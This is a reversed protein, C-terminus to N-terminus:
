NRFSLGFESFLLNRYSEDKAAKELEEYRGNSILLLYLQNLVGMGKEIGKEIGKEFGDEYIGEGLNCVSKMGKRMSETTVIDFEDKLIRQKEELDFVNTLLVSLLRLVGTARSDRPDGLCIMVLTMLDFNGREFEVYPTDDWDRFEYIKITHEFKKSPKLCIWISYVKKLNDYDSGTFEIGRQASVMRCLYYIGRKLLSYGPWFNKQPEVDVWLRRGTAPITATFRIDYTIRGEEVSADETNTGRIRPLWETVDEEVLVRSVLPEKEIFRRAIVNAEIDAYEVMCAKMIHALVIRHSLVEKCAADYEAILGNKM